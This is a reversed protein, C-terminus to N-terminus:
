VTRFIAGLIFSILIFSTVIKIEKACRHAGERTPNKLLKLISYILLVDCLIVGILYLFNFIGIFYPLPSLIVGLILLGLAIYLARKGYKIPLSIVGRKVDGEMDEFDKVIERAWTTLMACLFLIFTIFINGVSAGGFLFVSGTLYAVLLNGIRKDRKFRRAYLYLILTNILAIIFCIWNFLSLLLGALALIWPFLRASKLSIRGAALPRYPKNIRDIDIDYIDNIVNGFGCIFFVVLSALLIRDLMNVNFNSAILGAIAAGLSAILCNKVRILDLYDKIGM